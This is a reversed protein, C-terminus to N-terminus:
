NRAPSTPDASTQVSSPSPALEPCSARLREAQAGYRLPPPAVSGPILDTLMRQALVGIAVEVDDRLLRADAASAAFYRRPPADWRWFGLGPDYPPLGAAHSQEPRLSASAALSLAMPPNSGRMPTDRQLILTLSDLWVRLEPSVPGESGQESSRLRGGSRSVLARRLCAGIASPELVRRFADAATAIHETSRVDQTAAATGEAIAAGTGVAVGAALAAVLCLVADANCSDLLYLTAATPYIITAAATRGAVEAGSRPAPPIPPVFAADTGPRVSLGIPIGGRPMDWTTVAALNDSGTCAALQLVAACLRLMRRSWTQGLGPEMGSNAM